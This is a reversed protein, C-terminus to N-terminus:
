PRDGPPLASGFVEALGLERGGAADPDADRSAADSWAALESAMPTALGPVRAYVARAAPVWELTRHDAVWARAGRPVSAGGNLWDRLCGLDDFLRPEESPAVVQAAFHLGSIAMRCSSCTDHRTDIEVPTPPGGSCAGLLTAALLAAARGIKGKM